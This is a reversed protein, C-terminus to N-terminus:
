SDPASSLSDAAPISTRGSVCEFSLQDLVLARQLCFELLQGVFRVEILEFLRAKALAQTVQLTVKWRSCACPLERQEILKQTSKLLWGTVGIEAWGSM